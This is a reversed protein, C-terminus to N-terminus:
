CVWIALGQLDNTCYFSTGGYESLCQELVNDDVQNFNELVSSFDEDYFFQIEDESATFCDEILYDMYDDSIISTNKSIIEARKRDIGMDELCDTLLEKNNILDIGYTM